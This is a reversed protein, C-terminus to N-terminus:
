GPLVQELGAGCPTDIRRAQQLLGQAEPPLTSETLHKEMLDADKNSM